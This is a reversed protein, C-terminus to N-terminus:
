SHHRQAAWVCGLPKHAGHQLLVSNNWLPYARGGFHLKNRPKASDGEDNGATPAHDDPYVFVLALSDSVYDLDSDGMRSPRKRPTYLWAHATGTLYNRLGGNMKTYMSLVSPNKSFDPHLLIAACVDNTDDAAFGPLTLREVLAQLTPPALAVGAAAAAFTQLPPPYAAALLFGPPLLHSTKHVLNARTDQTGQAAEVSAAGPGRLATGAPGLALALAVSKHSNRKSKVLVLPPTGVGHGQRGDSVNGPSCWGSVSQDVRLRKTSAWKTGSGGCEGSDSGDSDSEDCEQGDNGDVAVSSDISSGGPDKGQSTEYVQQTSRMYKLVKSLVQQKATLSGQRMIKLSVAGVISTLAHESAESLAM